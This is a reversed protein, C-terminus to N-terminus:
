LKPKARLGVLSDFCDEGGEASEDPPPGPEGEEVIGGAKCESPCSFRIGNSLGTIRHIKVLDLVLVVHGFLNVDPAATSREWLRLPRQLLSPGLGWRCRWSPPNNQQTRSRRVRTRCGDSTSDQDSGTAEPTRTEPTRILCAGGPRRWTGSIM